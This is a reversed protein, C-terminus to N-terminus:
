RHYNSPRWSLIFNSTCLCITLGYMANICTDCQNTWHRFSFPLPILLPMNSLPNPCKNYVMHKVLDLEGPIICMFGHLHDHIMFLHGLAASRMESPTYTRMWNQM